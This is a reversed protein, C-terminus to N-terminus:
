TLSFNWHCFRNDFTRSELEYRIAAVLLVLAVVETGIVFALFINFLNKFYSYKIVGDYVSNIKGRVSVRAPKRACPLIVNTDVFRLFKKVLQAGSKKKELIM